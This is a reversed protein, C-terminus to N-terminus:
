RAVQRLWEQLNYYTTVRSIQGDRVDFFTGGPLVYKQGRAPPLDADAALYEGHVIWEAAFRGPPGEFIAIDELRERYSHTMRALFGLFKDRGIERGGQNLEHVVDSSLLATMGDWDAANFAAFYQRIIDASM